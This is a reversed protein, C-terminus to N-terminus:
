AKTELAHRFVDTFSLLGVLKGKDVVPARRVGMMRMLSVATDLSWEPVLAVTPHAMIEGVSTTELDVIGDFM